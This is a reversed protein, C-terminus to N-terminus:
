PRGKRRKRHKTKGRDDLLKWRIGLEVLSDTGYVLTRIQDELQHKQLTYDGFEMNQLPLHRALIECRTWEELLQLIKKAQKKTINEPTIM